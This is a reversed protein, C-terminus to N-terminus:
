PCKIKIIFQTDYLLCLVKAKLLKLIAPAFNNSNCSAFRIIASSAKPACKIIELTQQKVATFSQLLNKFLHLIIQMTISSGHNLSLVELM